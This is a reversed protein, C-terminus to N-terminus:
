VPSQLQRRVAEANPKQNGEASGKNTTFVVLLISFFVSKFIAFQQM